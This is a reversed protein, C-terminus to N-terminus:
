RSTMQHRHLGVGLDVEVENCVEEEGGEGGVHSLTAVGLRVRQTLEHGQMRLSFNGTKSTILLAM